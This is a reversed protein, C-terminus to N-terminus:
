NYSPGHMKFFGVEDTDVFMKWWLSIGKRKRCGLQHSQSVEAMRAPAFGQCDFVLVINYLVSEVVAVDADSRGYSGKEV